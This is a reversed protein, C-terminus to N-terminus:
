YIPQTSLKKRKKSEHINAMFLDAIYICLFPLLLMVVRILVWMRISLFSVSLFLLSIIFLPDSDSFKKLQLKKVYLIYLVFVLANVFNYIGILGFAGKKVSSQAYDVGYADSNTMYQAMLSPFIYFLLISLVVILKIKVNISLSPYVVPIFILLAIASSHFLSALLIVLFYKIYSFKILYKYGLLGIASAIGQRVAIIDDFILRTLFFLLFALWTCASYKYLFYSLSGLIIFTTFINFIIFEDSILNHVFHELIQYGAEYRDKSSYGFISTTDELYTFHKYYQPTDCLIKPSRFAFLIFFQIFFFWACVKSREKTKDINAFYLIEIFFVVFLIFYEIM